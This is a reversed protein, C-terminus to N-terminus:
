EVQPPLGPGSNSLMRRIRAQTESIDNPPSEKYPTLKLGRRVSELDLGYEHLLQAAFGKEERFLGLLLHEPGIHRNFLREAEEAGYALVRKSKNALPLDIPKLVPERIPKSLEIKKWVDEAALPSGFFRRALGQDAVLVGMLLHESEIYSSGTKSAIHRAIFLTLRAAETYREFM